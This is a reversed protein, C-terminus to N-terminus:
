GIMGVLFGRRKRVYATEDAAETAAVGCVPYEGGAGVGAIGRAIILMWIMGPHTLTLNMRM